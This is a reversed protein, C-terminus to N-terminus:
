SIKKGTDLGALILKLDAINKTQGADRLRRASPTFYTHGEVFKIQNAYWEADDYNKGLLALERRLNGNLRMFDDRGLVDLDADAMIKELVTTPNQPLITAYIIWRIIEIQEDTYGFGPLVEEAYRASILEHHVPQEVYGLDHFWAATLLLSFSEGTIGEMNALREVAPVVDDRTHAVGHYFLNPSLERELRELAYQKAREFNQSDM